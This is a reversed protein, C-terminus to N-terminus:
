SYNAIICPMQQVRYCREVDKRRQKVVPEDNFYLQVATCYKYLALADDGDHCKKFPITGIQGFGTRHDPWQTTGLLELGETTTNSM